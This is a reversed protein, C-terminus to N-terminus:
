DAGAAIPESPPALSDLAMQESQYITPDDAGIDLFARRRARCAGCHGCHTEGSRICSWTMAYDVELNTGMSFVGSKPMDLFPTEVRPRREHGHAALREFQDIFGRGYEPSAEADDRHLAILIADADVRFAYTTAIPLAIANGFPMLDAETHIM